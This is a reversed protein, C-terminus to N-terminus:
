TKMSPHLGKIKRKRVWRIYEQVKRNAKLLEVTYYKTTLERRTFLAHVQRACDICFWAVDDRKLTSKNKQKPKLHHKELSATRGCLECTGKKHTYRVNKRM